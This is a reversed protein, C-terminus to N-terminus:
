LENIHDHSMSYFTPSRVQNNEPLFIETASTKSVTTGPFTGYNTAESTQSDDVVIVGIGGADRVVGKM